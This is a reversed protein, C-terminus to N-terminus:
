RHLFRLISVYAHSVPSLEFIYPEFRIGNFISKNLEIEYYHVMVGFNMKNYKPYFKAGFKKHFGIAEPTSYGYLKRYGLGAAKEMISRRLMSGVSVGARGRQFEEKVYHSTSYSTRFLDNKWRRSFAGMGALEGSERVEAVMIAKGFKLRELIKEDPQSISEDIMQEPHKGGRSVRLSNSANRFIGPLQSDDSPKYDRVFIDM